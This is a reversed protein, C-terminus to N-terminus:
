VISKISYNIISEKNYNFLKIRDFGHQNYLNENYGSGIKGITNLRSIQPMYINVDKAYLEIIYDFGINKHTDILKLWITQWFLKSVCIGWPAYYTSNKISLLTFQDEINYLSDNPNFLFHKNLYCLISLPDMNNMYFTSLLFIDKSFIVDDEFYIVHTEKLVDFVYNIGYFVNELLGRRFPNTIIICNLTKPIMDVMIESNPEVVFLFKLNDPLVATSISDIYKQFYQLRHAGAYYIPTFVIM